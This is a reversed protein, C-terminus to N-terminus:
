FFMKTKECRKRKKRRADKEKNSFFRCVYVTLGARYIETCYTPRYSILRFKDLKEGEKTSCTFITKSPAWVREVRSTIPEGWFLHRGSHSCVSRNRVPRSLTELFKGHCETCVCRQQIKRCVVCVGNCQAQYWLRPNEVSSNELVIHQVFGVYGFGNYYM